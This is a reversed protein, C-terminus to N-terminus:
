CDLVLHEAREILSLALREVAHKLLRGVARHHVASFGDVVLQTIGLRTLDYAILSRKIPQNTARVVVPLRGRLDILRRGRVGFEDPRKVANRTCSEIGAVDEQVRACHHASVAPTPRLAVLVELVSLQNRRWDHRM